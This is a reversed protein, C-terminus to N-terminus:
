ASRAALRTRRTGAGCMAFGCLAMLWSAPEPVASPVPGGISQVDFKLDSEVGFLDTTYTNGNNTLGSFAAFIEYEGADLISTQYTANAAGFQFPLQTTSDYRIKKTGDVIQFVVLQGITNNPALSQSLYTSTFDIQIKTDSSFYYGINAAGTANAVAPQPYYPYEYGFLNIAFEGSSPSGLTGTVESQSGSFPANLASAITESAKTDVPQSSYTPHDVITGGADGSATKGTATANAAVLVALDDYTVAAMASTTTLCATIGSAILVCRNVVKGM